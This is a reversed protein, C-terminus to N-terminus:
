ARRSLLQDLAGATASLQDRAEQARARWAPDDPDADRLLAAIRQGGTVAEFLVVRGGARGDAADIPSACWRLSRGDRLGIRGRRVGRGPDDDLRRLAEAAAARDAVLESRTVLDAPRMGVPVTPLGLQELLTRNADDITGDAHLVLVGHSLSEFVAGDGGVSSRPAALGAVPPLPPREGVAILDDLRQELAVVVDPDFQSGACRRLEAVAQDVPMGRRYPRDHTMADFADCVIFMRSALPIAAGRLGRPYGSGDLHEHHTAIVKLAPRLFEIGAILKVGHEVHRQMTAREHDDLPGPKLLVADPVALKGIDHLLFGYVLQPDDRLEPDLESALIAGYSAVRQVHGGTVADRADVAAALAAVTELHARSLADRIRRSRELARRLDTAYAHVQAILLDADTTATTDM